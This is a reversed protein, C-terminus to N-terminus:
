KVWQMVADFGGAGLLNAFKAAFMGTIVCFSVASLVLVWNDISREHRFSTLDVIKPEATQAFGGVRQNSHKM